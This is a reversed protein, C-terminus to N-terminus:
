PYNKGSRQLDTDTRSGILKSFQEATKTSNSLIYVQNGCNSIITEADDGYLKELQNYAQIILDFSINRGNCVTIINSMNDIPPM